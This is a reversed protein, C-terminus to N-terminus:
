VSHESKTKGSTSNRRHMIDGVKVHVADAPLYVAITDELIGRQVYSSVLERMSKTVQQDKGVILHGNKAYVNERIVMTSNLENCKVSTMRRDVTVVELGALAELIEPCEYSGNKRLEALARSKSAGRTILSDFDMAATVLSAVSTEFHADVGLNSETASPSATLGLRAIIRSVRELRPIHDILVASVEHMRDHCKAEEVTLEDGSFTKALIDAPVTVCGLQCLLGALEVEWTPEIHLVSAIQRVYSRIRTARGFALPSVLALIDVLTQISSVLTRELLERESIVLHFQEVCQLLVAEITKRRYPKVLFRFVHGDNVASMATELNGHGTMMVRVSEPSVEKVVKLFEIGNMGDMEMDAVIVAFTDGTALLSLGQKGNLATVVDYRTVLQTSVAELLDPDDDVFLVRPLVATTEKPVKVPTEM